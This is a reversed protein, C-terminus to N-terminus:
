GIGISGSNGGGWFFQGARSNKFANQKSSEPPRCLAFVPDSLNFPHPSRIKKSFNGFFDTCCIYLRPNKGFMEFM